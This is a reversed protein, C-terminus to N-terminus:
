SHVGIIESYTARLASVLERFRDNFHSIHRINRARRTSNDEFDVSLPLLSKRLDDILNGPVQIGHDLLVTVLSHFEKAEAELEETDITISYEM